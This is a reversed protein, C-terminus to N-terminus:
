GQQDLSLLEGNLIYYLYAEVQDYGMAQIAQKYSELQKFYRAHHKGSKYDIVIAKGERIMVRDPRLLNGKGDILDAENKVIWGAEYWSQVESRACISRLVKEFNELYELAVKGSLRMREVAEPVDELTKVFSLAEHYLEGESIKSRSTRIDTTLYTNTQYKIKASKEWQFPKHTHLPLFSSQSDSREQIPVVKKGYTWKGEKELMDLEPNPIILQLLTSVSNPRGTSKSTPAILYLRDKPRTFAVYLLNLNDMYSQIIEEQYMEKFYTNELRQIASVPFFNLQDFPSKKMNQIWLIDLKNPGMPWEAFPIMVIPFELGKAKHITMIQVAEEHASAAIRASSKRNEWWSLFGAISGEQQHVFGWAEEIIGLIYASHLPVEFLECLLMLAGYITKENLSAAQQILVEQAGGKPNKLSSFNPTQDLILQHFYTLEARFM